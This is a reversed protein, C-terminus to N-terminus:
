HKNWTFLALLHRQFLHLLHTGNREAGRQVRAVEVAKAHGLVVDHEHLLREFQVDEFQGRGVESPDVPSGAELKILVVDYTVM